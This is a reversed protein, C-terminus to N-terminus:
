GLPRGPAVKAGARPRLGPLMRQLVDNRRFFYHHLAAGVHMAVLGYIAWQMSAHILGFFEGTPKDKAVPPPLDVLGAYSFDIGLFSIFLYGTIPTVLLVLYLLAHVSGSARIELRNLDASPPPPRHGLRWLFRLVTLALITIGLSEHTIFLTDQLRGRPLDGMIIGMPMIIALLAVTLWHFARAGGGYVREPQM